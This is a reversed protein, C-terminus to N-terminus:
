DDLIGITLQICRITYGDTLSSSPARRRRDSPVCGDKSSSKRVSPEKEGEKLLEKVRIWPSGMTRRPFSGNWQFGLLFFCCTEIGPLVGFRFRRVSFPIRTQGFLRSGMMRPRPLCGCRRSEPDRDDSLRCLSVFGGSFLIRRCHINSRLSTRRLRDFQQSSRTSSEAHFVSSFLLV